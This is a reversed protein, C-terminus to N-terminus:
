KNEKKKEIQELIKQDPFNPLEMGFYLGMNLLILKIENLSKRGFNKTKLMEAESKKVLEGVLRINANKLCNYSRVSLDLDDITKYLNWNTEESSDGGKDEAEEEIAFNILFRTHERLIMAAYALADRPTVSGDTEIELTLKDYNFNNKVRAGTIAYNVRVVPSFFSDVPIYGESYLSPEHDESPVYGRGSMVLIEMELDINEDMEFLFLEKNLIKLVSTEPIDGATVKGKGKRRLVLHHMKDEHGLFRIQKLNLFINVVDEKVGPITSFEHEVGKIKVAIIASGRISSLLIRRLSNGLTIGYGKMLPECVFRAYTGAENQEVVKVEKPMILTKWNSRYM